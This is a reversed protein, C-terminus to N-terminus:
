ISVFSSSTPLMETQAAPSTAISSHRQRRPSGARRGALSTRQGSSVHSAASTPLVKWPRAHPANAAAGQVANPWMQCTRYAKRQRPTVYEVKKTLESMDSIPGFVRYKRVAETKTEPIRSTQGYTVTVSVLPMCQCVLCLSASVVNVVSSLLHRRNREQRCKFARQRPM